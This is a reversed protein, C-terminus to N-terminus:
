ARGGEGLLTRLAGILLENEDRARATVRLWGTMPGSTYSRVVLGRRLLSEALGAADPPRFTVFNGLGDLVDCGLASLTSALRRREGVIEEIRSTAVAGDALAGLALVETARGVSLPLRLGDFRAALQEPLVLYGIRAGALGHSKALSRLVIVNPLEQQLVTADIDVAGSATAFELYVQDVVVIAGLGDALRRLGHLDVADGTPNNPSCVWVLRAGEAEAASRLEDPSRARAPHVRAVDVVRAGALGAEIAYMPFTPTAVIVADGEGVVATTVLRILEDAGAGPIVRDPPVGAAMGIASRLERYGLDGYEVAEAPDWAGWARRVGPLPGGGLTNMDYRVIRDVPLGVSAALEADSPELPYAEIPGPRRLLRIPDRM